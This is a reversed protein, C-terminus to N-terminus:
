RAERTHWLRLVLLRTGTVEYRLEYDGIFIRRVERHPYRPLREGIRPFEALREVGSILANVAASAAAPDVPALFAHVRELHKLASRTWHLSM